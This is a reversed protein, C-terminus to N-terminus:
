YPNELSVKEWQTKKGRNRELVSNPLLWRLVKDMKRKKSEDWRWGVWAHVSSPVCAWAKGTVLLFGLIYQGAFSQKKGAVSDKAECKGTGLDDAHAVCAAMGWCHLRLSSASVFWFCSEGDQSACGTEYIFHYNQIM